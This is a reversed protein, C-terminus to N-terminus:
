SGQNPPQEAAAAVEQILLAGAGLTASLMEEIDKPAVWLPTGIVGEGGVAQMYQEDIVGAKHVILNRKQSLCWLVRAGLADHLEKAGPLLAKYAARIALLNNLDAKGILYTGVRTSMDFGFNALTEWEVREAAFRKRNAPEALLREAYAPQRNLLFVFADRALVELASWTLVAGQRTLQRAAALLDPREAQALLSDLVDQSVVEMGERSLYAAFAERSAATVKAKGDEDRANVGSRILDALHRKQWHHSSVEAFTYHFPMGLTLVVGDLNEAFASAVSRLGEPLGPASALLPELTARFNPPILFVARVADVNRYSSDIPRQQETM